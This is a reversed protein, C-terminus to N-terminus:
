VTGTNIKKQIEQRSLKAIIKKRENNKDNMNERVICICKFPNQFWQIQILRM